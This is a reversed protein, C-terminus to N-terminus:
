DLPLGMLGYHWTAHHFRERDEGKFSRAVDPRTAARAFIWRDRDADSLGPPMADAFDQQFRPHQKLLDIAWARSADNLQHWAILATLMHGGDNWAQAPRPAAITLLSALLLLARVRPRPEPSM